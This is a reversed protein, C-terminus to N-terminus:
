ASEADQEIMRSHDNRRERQHEDGPHAAPIEPPLFLEDGRDDHGCHVYANEVVPQGQREIQERPGLLLLRLIRCMSSKCLRSKPKETANVKCFKHYQKTPQKRPVSIPTNGPIPGTAVMAISSGIVKLRGGVGASIMSAPM